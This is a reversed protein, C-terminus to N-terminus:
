TSCRPEAGRGPRGDTTTPLQGATPADNDPALGYPEAASQPVAESVKLDAVDRAVQPQQGEDFLLRAREFMAAYRRLTMAHQKMSINAVVLVFAVAGFTSWLNAGAADKGAADTVKALGAVAVNGALLIPWLGTKEILGFFLTRREELEEAELNLMRSAEPLDGRYESRALETLTEHDNKMSVISAPYVYKMPAFIAAFSRAGDTISRALLSLTALFYAIIGGNRIWSPTDAWFYVTVLAVLFLVFCLIAIWLAALKAVHARSKKELKRVAAKRDRERSSVKLLLGELSESSSRYRVAGDSMNAGTKEVNVAAQVLGSLSPSVGAIM